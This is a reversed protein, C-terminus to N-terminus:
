GFLPWHFSHKSLVLHMRATPFPSMGSCMPQIGGSHPLLSWVGAMGPLIPNASLTHFLAAIPIPFHHIQVQFSIPATPTTDVLGFGMGLGLRCECTWESKHWCYRQCPNLYVWKVQLPKCQRVGKGWPPRQFTYFRWMPHLLLVSLTVIDNCLTNCHIPSYVNMM